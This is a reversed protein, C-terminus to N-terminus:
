GWDDIRQDVFDHGSAPVGDGNAAFRGHVLFKYQYTPDYLANVLIDDRVIPRGRNSRTVKATSTTDGVKIVEVSAKGRPMDGNADPRLQASDDYIEFTM